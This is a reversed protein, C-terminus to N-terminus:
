ANVSLSKMFNLWFLFGSSEEDPKAMMDNYKHCCRVIADASMLPDKDWYQLKFFKIKSCFRESSDRASNHPAAKFSAHLFARKKRGLLHLIQHHM